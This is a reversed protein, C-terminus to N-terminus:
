AGGGSEDARAPAPDRWLGSRQIQGRAYQAEVIVGHRCERDLQDCLLSLALETEECKACFMTKGSLAARAEALDAAAKEVDGRLKRVVRNAKQCDGIVRRHRKDITRIGEAIEGYTPARVGAEDLAACMDALCLNLHDRPRQAAEFDERLEDLEAKAADREGALKEVGQALTGFTLIGAAHLADIAPGVEKNVGGIHDPIEAVRGYKEDNNHGDWSNKGVELHKFWGRESDHIHWSAQGTPLNIFVIWRWDDDWSTDSDPHRALWSPFCKSLACVLRDRENYAGANAARLEAAEAVAADREARLRQEHSPTGDYNSM